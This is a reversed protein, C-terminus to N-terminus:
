GKPYLWTTTRDEGDKTYAQEKQSFLALDLQFELGKTLEGPTKIMYSSLVTRSDKIPLRGIPTDIYGTIAPNSNIEQIVNIFGGNRSATSSYVTLNTM